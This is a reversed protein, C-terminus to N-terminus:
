TSRSTARCRSPSRPTLDQRRQRIPFLADACCPRRGAPRHGARARDQEDRRRPGRRADRVGRAQGDDDLPEAREQEISANDRRLEDQGSVLANVIADLQKQSSEYRQFYHTLKKGGPIMGLLKHVGTLEARAPDLDTITTRLDQLTQAVKVQPDGAPRPGARRRALELPARAHPESRRSVRTIEESGMRVLDDIKKTFAPSQPQEGAFCAVFESAERRLETRKDAPVAVLGVAQEPQVEPVAAPAALVVADHEGGDPPTLPQSLDLESM